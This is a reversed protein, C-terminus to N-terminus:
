TKMSLKDRFGFAKNGKSLEGFIYWDVPRLGSSSVGQLNECSGAV